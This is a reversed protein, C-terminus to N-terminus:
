HHGLIGKTKAKRECFFFFFIGMGFYLLNTVITILLNNFDLQNQNVLIVAQTTPIMSSIKQLAIPLSRISLFVGSLFLFSNNIINTLWSVDKLIITLGGIFFSIGFLGPTICLLASIVRFNISSINIYGALGLSTLFFAVIVFARFISAIVKSIFLVSPPISSLYIQEFTGSRMEMSIKGSIDGIILVSYFWICYSVGTMRIEQTLASLFFFFAILSVFEGIWQWKYSWTNFFEKKIENWIIKLFKM